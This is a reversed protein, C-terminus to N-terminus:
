VMNKKKLFQYYEIKLLVIAGIGVMFLILNLAWGVFPIIGILYYVVLALAVMGFLKVHSVKKKFNFVYSALWVAVFIKAFYMFVMLIALIVLGTSVGVVTILLILATIFAIIMTLLGVGFTKLINDKTIKASRILAKPILLVLFLTLILAGIFSFIKSIFFIYTLDELITGKEFKNFSTEGGVVNEPVTSELLASYKLDGGIMASDSVSMTDEITVIVDRGVKGNLLLMGMGGRIDEKVEGDVTLIGAGTILSGGVVSSKGLDVQGGAVIIDDGVNGYVAVQGGAVRLDGTVDGTVVVRGGIVVLDEHVNGNVTVAGGIIYLDGFIESEINANGAVVYTDDLINQTIVVNEAIEFGVASAVPASAFLFASLFLLLFKKM